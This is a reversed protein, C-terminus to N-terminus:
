QFMSPTETDKTKSPTMPAYVSGNPLFTASDEAKKSAVQAIISTHQCRLVTTSVVKSFRLGQRLDRSTRHPSVQPGRPARKQSEPGEQARTPGKQLGDSASVKMRVMDM